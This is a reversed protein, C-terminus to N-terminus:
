SSIVEHQRTALFDIIYVILMHVVFFREFENGREFGDHFKSFAAAIKM